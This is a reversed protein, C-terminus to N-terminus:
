WRKTFHHASPLLPQLGNMSTCLYQRYIHRAFESAAMCGHVTYKSLALTYWQTLSHCVLYLVTYEGWWKWIIANWALFGPTWSVTSNPIVITKSERTQKYSYWIVTNGHDTSGVDNLPMPELGVNPSPRDYRGVSVSVHFIGPFRGLNPPEVDLLWDHAQQFSVINM